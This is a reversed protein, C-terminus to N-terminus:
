KVFYVEVSGTPESRVLEVKTFGLDHALKGAWTQRAAEHKEEETPERGLADVYAQYQDFNDSEIGREPISKRWYARFRTVTFGQEKFFSLSRRVLMAAYIDPHREQPKDNWGRSEVSIGITDISGYIIFAHFDFAPQNMDNIDIRERTITAEMKRGSMAKFEGKFGPKFVSNPIGGKASGIILESRAM